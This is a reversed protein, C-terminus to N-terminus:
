NKEAESRSKMRTIFNNSRNKRFNEYPDNMNMGIGKYMDSRDRVEGGSIPQAIGQNGANFSIILNDCNLREDELSV